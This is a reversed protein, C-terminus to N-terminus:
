GASVFMMAVGGACCPSNILLSSSAATPIRGAECQCCCDVSSSGLSSVAELRSDKVELVAESLELM